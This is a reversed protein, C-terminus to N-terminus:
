GYYEKIQWPTNIKLNHIGTVADAVAFLSKWFAQIESTLVPPLKQGFYVGLDMNGYELLINYTTNKTGATLTADSGPSRPLSNHTKEYDGLWRVM